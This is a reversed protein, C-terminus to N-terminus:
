ESRMAKAPEVFSALVAPILAGLTCLTISVIAIIAVESSNVEAPIDKFFYFEPDWLTRGAFNSAIQVINNRYAVVTLGLAIGMLTGVAGVFLGQYSFIKIISTSSAGLSKLVGIERRKQVVVTILTCLICIAAVLVIFALLFILIIKQLSLMDLMRHELEKWSAIRFNPLKRELKNIFPEVNFPDNTWVYIDTAAGWPLEYLDAADDIGLFIINKDFDRKDFGYLGSIIYEEPLYMKKPKSINLQGSKNTKVMKQLKAPSHVILKDGVKLNLEDAIFKSIIVRQEGLEYKGYNTKDNNKKAKAIKNEINKKLNFPANGELSNVGIIFKYVVKDGSQIICERKILPLPKGGLKKITETVEEYDPIYGHRPNSVQVHSITKLLTEQMKDNFGSMVSTVVILVAVGLMVGLLSICTIVSVANRKPTLYRWALFLETM